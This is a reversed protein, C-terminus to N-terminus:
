LLMQKLWDSSLGCAHGHNWALNSLMMWYAFNIHMCTYIEIKFSFYKFTHFNYSNYNFQKFWKCWACGCAQMNMCFSMSEACRCLKGIWLLFTEVECISYNIPVSESLFTSPLIYSILFLTFWYTGLSWKPFM